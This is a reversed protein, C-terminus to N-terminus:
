RAIVERVAAIVESVDQKSLKASLPLSVTQRGIKMAIPYDVSKWGFRQQYYPHEPISQYHVGAGINQAILADIFADRSIGTKEPDILITYLHLAHHTDPEPDAPLGIPLDAFAENYHNWIEQRRLWYAEVRSLQHIGIAAQIDMMNYKLGCDFVYYHKYGEDGFRNWADKYSRFDDIFRAVNSGTGLWGSRMSAVVEDIETEEIAPAGFVLFRDNPRIPLNNM